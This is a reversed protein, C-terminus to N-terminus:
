LTTIIFWPTIIFIIFYHHLSTHSGSFSQLQISYPAYSSSSPIYWAVMLHGDPCNSPVPTCNIHPYPNTQPLLSDASLGDKILQLVVTLVEPGMNIHPKSM